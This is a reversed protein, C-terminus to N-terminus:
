VSFLYDLAESVTKEDVAVAAVPKGVDELLAFRIYTSDTNKKDAHMLRVLQSLDKCSCVPKGYNELMLRTMLQLTGVPMGLLKVSLYLEAVMGQMVAYGHKLGDGKATAMAELAHGVTHGFNLIHRRGTDYLDSAVIDKKVAVAQKILNLANANWYEANELGEVLEGLLEGGSLLAHKLMEAYGSLFDTKPLTNLWEVSVVTEMPSAFCGIENKVGCYNFATKGGYSADVMALLTTPINIFLIGRKFTAAAFGAVDTVFGGGILLAITQRTADQTHFFRWVREVTVLSKEAEDADLCLVPYGWDPLYSAIKTDAMVLIHKEKHASLLSSLSLQWNDTIIM